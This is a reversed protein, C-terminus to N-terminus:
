VGMKDLFASATLIGNRVEDAAILATFDTPAVELDFVGEYGADLVYGMLRALPLEGAGIHRRGGFDPGLPSGISVDDIQMLTLHPMARRLTEKLNREAWLNGFDAILGMGTREAVEIADSLTSVFSVSPFYVPELAVQVNRERGYAVIPAVARALLELDADWDFHVTRGSTFYISHGKIASVADIAACYTASSAEWSSEDGLNYGAHVLTSCAIGAADLRSMKGQFDDEVKSILPAAHKVQMESWLALEEEFSWTYTCMADVSLRPNIM